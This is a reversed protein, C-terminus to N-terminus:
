EDMKYNLPLALLYKGVERSMGLGEVNWEPAQDGVLKGERAQGYTGASLTIGNRNDLAM